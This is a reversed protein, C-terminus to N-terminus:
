YKINLIDDINIIDNDLTIVHNNVITAIHTIYEKDTTKITVEKNFIYGPENLLNQIKDIVSLDEIIEPKTIELNDKSSDFIERNNNINKEIKNAFIKPKKM